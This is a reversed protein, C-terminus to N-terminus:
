INGKPFKSYFQDHKIASCGSPETDGPKIQNFEEQCIPCILDESGTTTTKVELGLSSWFKVFEKKSPALSKHKGLKVAFLREAAYGTPLQRISPIKIITGDAHKTM